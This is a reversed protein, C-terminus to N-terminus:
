CLESGERETEVLLIYTSLVITKVFSFNIYNYRLVYILVVTNQYIGFVM